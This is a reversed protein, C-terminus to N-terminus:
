RVKFLCSPTTCSNIYDYFDPALKKMSLSQENLNAIVPTTKSGMYVKTNGIDQWLFGRSKRFALLLHNDISAIWHTHLASMSRQWIQRYLGEAVGRASRNVALSGIEVIRPWMIKSIQSAIEPYIEFDCLTPVRLHSGNIQRIVGVIAGTIDNICYYYTSLDVFVDEIMGSPYANEIYGINLFADHHFTRIQWLDEAETIGFSFDGIKELRM